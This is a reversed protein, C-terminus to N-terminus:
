TNAGTTSIVSNWMIKSTTVDATRTTCDFPCDILNRGAALRVRNPDEKQPCFNCVIRTYTVTQDKPITAIEEHTMFRVTDTGKTDGWGQAIRGLEKCMAALWVDQLEPVKIIKAYKTMTEKTIPHVVGNAM